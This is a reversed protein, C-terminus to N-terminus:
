EDARKELEVVYAALAGSLVARPLPIPHLAKAPPRALVPRLSLHQPRPTTSEM